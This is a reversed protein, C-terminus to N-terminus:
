DDLVLHLDDVLITWLYQNLIKSLEQYSLSEREGKKNGITCLIFNLRSQVGKVFLLLLDIYFKVPFSAHEYSFCRRLLKWCLYLHATNRNLAALHIYVCKLWYFIFKVHLFHRLFLFNVKKNLVQCFM